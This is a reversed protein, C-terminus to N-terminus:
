QRVFNWHIELMPLSSFSSLVVVLLPDLMLHGELHRVMGSKCMNGGFKLSNPPPVFGGVGVLAGGWVGGLLLFLLYFSLQLLVM